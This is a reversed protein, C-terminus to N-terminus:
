DLVGLDARAAAILEREAKGLLSTLDSLRSAMVDRGETTPMKVAPKWAQTFERLAAAITSAIESARASGDLMAAVAVTRLPDFREALGDALGRLAADRSHPRSVVESLEACHLLADNVNRLLEEYLPRREAARQAARKAAAEHKRRRGSTVLTLIATAQSAVAGGIALLAGTILQNM